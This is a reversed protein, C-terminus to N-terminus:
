QPLSYLLLEFKLPFCRRLSYSLAFVLGNSPLSKESNLISYGLIDLEFHFIWSFFIKWFKAVWLTASPVSSSCM